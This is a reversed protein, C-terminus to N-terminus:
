QRGKRKAENIEKDTTEFTLTSRFRRATELLEKTEARQPESSKAPLEKAPEKM